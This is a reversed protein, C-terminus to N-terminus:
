IKLHSCRSNFQFQNQRIDLSLRMKFLLSTEPSDTCQYLGAPAQTAQYDSLPIYREFARVQM